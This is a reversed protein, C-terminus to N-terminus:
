NGSDNDEYDYYDEDLDIVDNSEDAAKPKVKVVYDEITEPVVVNDRKAEDKSKEM